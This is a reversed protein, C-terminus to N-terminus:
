VSCLRHLLCQYYGSPSDAVPAVVISVPEVGTAVTSPTLPSLQGDSAISFRSLTNDAANTVYLFSGTPDVTATSRAVGFTHMGANTVTAPNMPMLTEDSAINYQSITGDGVNVVYVHGQSVVVAAPDIGAGIAAQVLPSVSYDSM